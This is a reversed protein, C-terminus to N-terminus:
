RGAHGAASCTGATEGEVDRVAPPTAVVTGVHETSPIGSSMISRMSGAVIPEGRAPPDVITGDMRGRTGTTGTGGSILAMFDPGAPAKAACDSSTKEPMALLMLVAVLM